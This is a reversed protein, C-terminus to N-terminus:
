SSITSVSFRSFYSQKPLFFVIEALVARMLTKASVLFHGRGSFDALYEASVVSQRVSASNCGSPVKLAVASTVLDALVQLAAM